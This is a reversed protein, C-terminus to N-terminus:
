GRMLAGHVHVHVHIHIINCVTMNCTAGGAVIYACSAIIMM